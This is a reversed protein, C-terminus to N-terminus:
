KGAIQHSETETAAIILHRRALWKGQCTGCGATNMLPIGDLQREM